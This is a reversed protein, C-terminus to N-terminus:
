RRRRALQTRTVTGVLGPEPAREEDALRPRRAADRPGVVVAALAAGTTRIREGVAELAARRTRGATVVVLSVDAVDVVAEGEPSDIGPADVVVVNGAEILPALVARLREAVFFERSQATFAGAPLVGLLPEITPQLLEVSDLREYLLAQALGDEVVLESTAAQVDTRVLVVRHGARAFSTAVAESVEPAHEGTAAPSVAVVNPRPELGLISARLRRVTSDFRDNEHTRLLRARLRPRPVAAAVPVGTELVERPSRVVGRLRELLLALLCGVALGGLAGSVPAAAAVINSASQPVTAPSIVKGAPSESTELATRQARLSVLDNRLATSLQAQFAREAPSGHQAAATAARLDTVVSLTQNELRDIRASNVEDARSARNSLYSKAVAEAVRQAVAEDGASFSIQLVQTNPPVTIQLGRELSNVSLGPQGDLVPALVEDSRAVQAETELSTLEDQRVATPTPVFPNGVAPNVLVDATSTYTTPLSAAYLWGLVLGLALCAAVLAAHHRVARSTPIRGPTPPNESPM